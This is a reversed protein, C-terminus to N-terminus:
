RSSGTAAAHRHVASFTVRFFPTVGAPQFTRFSTQHQFRCAACRAPTRRDKREEQTLMRSAGTHPAPQLSRLMSSAYRTAYRRIHWRCRRSRRVSCSERSVHVRPPAKKYSCEEPRTSVSSIASDEGELPSPEFLLHTRQAQSVAYHPMPRHRGTGPKKESAARRTIM